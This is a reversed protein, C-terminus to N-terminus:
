RGNEEDIPVANLMQRIVAEGYKPAHGTDAPAAEAAVLQDPNLVKAIFKVRVGVIRHIAGRVADVTEGGAKFKEVYGQNPFALSLVDGRYDIITASVLITWASRTEKELIELVQTWADRMQGATLQGPDAQAVLAPSAAAPSAAAPSAAPTAPVPASAVPGAGPAGGPADTDNHPVPAFGTPPTSAFSPALRQEAPLSPAPPRAPESPAQEPIPADDDGFSGGFYPDDPATVWVDPEPPLEDEPTVPRPAPRSPESAARTPSAPAPASAPATATPAPTAPAAAPSAPAPSAPASSASRAPAGSARAAAPAPAPSSTAPSATAAPSPAGGAVLTPASDRVSADVSEVGLRRELRDLRSLTGLATDDSEPLLLRACLVELHIRQSTAGVMETLAANAIAAARVLQAPGFAQALRALTASDDPTASGLVSEAAPGASAVLILDRLRELLDEVFRRPDQGSEIVREIAEFLASPDRVVLADLVRTLLETPTYGLLTVTHEYDISNGESGAILQDAVSLTDRVSGGGARVILPLAGPAAVIKELSLVKELYSTMTAPPVLRFPYHHTRSRITGIVKEPETTAFVFKVHEPPEEVIKLLANFGGATVMHAEDIIFVKYRDRAPAFFARERLDRADDVGGHSAADIEVVDLSGSGGTSLEVCSPCVGCPTDTPGEACNLCRALVRASTTKGCGRPGSFLYAHNVRNTRLATMLPHTVHEQGILDAFTDPRYRRYLATVVFVLRGPPDSMGAGRSPVPGGGSAERMWVRGWEHRSGANEACFHAQVRRRRCFHARFYTAQGFHALNHSPHGRLGGRARWRLGGGARALAGVHRVGADVAM